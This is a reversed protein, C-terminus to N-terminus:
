QHKWRKRSWGRGRGGIPREAWPASLWTTPWRDGGEGNTLVVVGLGQDPYIVMLSHFDRNDGGHWLSDGQSSHQIGIGLGWSNHDNVCIQPTRMQDVLDAPASQPNGLEILFRALDGATARLSYAANPPVAPGKPVPTSLLFSVWLL